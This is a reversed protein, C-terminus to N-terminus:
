PLARVQQIDVILMNEFCSNRTVYPIPASVVKDKYIVQITGQIITAVVDYQVIWGSPGIVPHAGAAVGKDDPGEVRVGLTPLTLPAGRIDFIRGAVGAWGCGDGTITNPVYTRNIVMFPYPIPTPGGGSGGGGLDRTWAPAVNGAPVPTKTPIPTASPSITPTPTTLTDAIAYMKQAETKQSTTPAVRMAQAFRDRAGFPDKQALFGEGTTMYAEYLWQAVKGGFYDPRQEQVVTLNRITAEWSRAQYATAGDLFTAALRRPTDAQPDLPKMSLAKEYYNQAV